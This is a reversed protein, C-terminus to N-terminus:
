KIGDAAARNRGEGMSDPCARRRISAIANMGNGILGHSCTRHPLRVTCARGFRRSTRRTLTCPRGSLSARGPRAFRTRPPTDGCASTRPVGLRAVCPETTQCAPTLAQAPEAKRRSTPLDPRTSGSSGGRHGAWRWVTVPPYVAEEDLPTGSEPSSRTPRPKPSRSSSTDWTAASPERLLSSFKWELDPGFTEDRREADAYRRLVGAPEERSRYDDVIAYYTIEEAM